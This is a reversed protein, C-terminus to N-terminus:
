QGRTLAFFPLGPIKQGLTYALKGFDTQPQYPAGVLTQALKSVQGSTPTLTPRQDEIQKLLEPSPGQYGLKQEIPRVYQDHVDSIMQRLDGPLGVLMGAGNVLGAGLSKAADSGDWDARFRPPLDGESPAHVGIPAPPTDNAM